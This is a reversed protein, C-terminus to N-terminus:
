HAATATADDFTRIDRAVLVSRGGCTNTIVSDGVKFTPRDARWAVMRGTVVVHKGVLAQARTVDSRGAFNLSTCHGPLVGYDQATAFLQFEDQQALFGVLRVNSTPPTACSALLAVALACLAARTVM